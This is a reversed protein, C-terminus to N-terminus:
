ERERAIRLEDRMLQYVREALATPDVAPPANETAGPTTTTEASSASAPESKASPDASTQLHTAEPPPLAETAPVTAATVPPSARPNSATSRTLTVNSAIEEIHIPM